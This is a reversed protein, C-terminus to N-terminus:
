LKVMECFKVAYTKKQNIGWLVWKEQKIELKQSLSYLGYDGIGFGYQNRYDLYLKETKDHDNISKKISKSFSNDDLLFIDSGVFVIGKDILLDYIENNFNDIIPIMMQLIEKLIQKRFLDSFGLAVLENLEVEIQRYLLQTYIPSIYITDFKCNLKKSFQYKNLLKFKKEFFTQVKNFNDIKLLDLFNDFFGSEIFGIYDIQEVIIKANNIKEKLSDKVSVLDIDSLYLEDFVSLFYDLDFDNLNGSGIILLRKKNIQKKLTSKMLNTTVKIYEQNDLNKHTQNLRYYFDEKM